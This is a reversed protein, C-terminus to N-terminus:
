PWHRQFDLEPTCAASCPTLKKSTKNRGFPNSFYREPFLFEKVMGVIGAHIVGRYKEARCATNLDVLSKSGRAKCVELTYLIWAETKQTGATGADLLVQFNKQEYEVGHRRIVPAISRLKRNACDVSLKYVRGCLFKLAEVVSKAMSTELSLSKKWAEWGQEVDKVHEEPGWLAQVKIMMNVLSSLLQMSSAFDLGGSQLQGEIHNIDVLDRIEAILHQREGSLKQLSSSLHELTELVLAYTPTSSSIDETVAEWHGRDFHEKIRASLPSNSWKGEEMLEFSDDLLLEHALMLNTMEISDRGCEKADEAHNKDPEGPEIVREELESIKQTLRARAAVHAALLAPDEGDKGIADEISSLAIKVRAAVNANDGVKWEKFRKLYSRLVTPLLLTEEIERWLKSAALKQAVVHVCELLNKGADLLRSDREGMVTFVNSPKETILYATLFTTTSVKKPILPKASRNGKNIHWVIKDLFLRTSRVTAPRRLLAAM